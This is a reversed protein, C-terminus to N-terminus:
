QRPAAAEIIGIPITYSPDDWTAGNNLSTSGILDSYTNNSVDFNYSQAHMNLSVSTLILISLLKKM